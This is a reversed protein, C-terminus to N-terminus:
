RVATSERTNAMKRFASPLRKERITSQTVSTAVFVLFRKVSDNASISLEMLDNSLNYSFDSSEALEAASNAQSNQLQLTFAAFAASAVIAYRPKHKLSM